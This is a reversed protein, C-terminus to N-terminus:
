LKATRKRNSATAFANSMASRLQGYAQSKQAEGSALHGQAQAEAERQRQKRKAKAGFIGMIGGAVAGVVAGQPGFKAGMVAGSTAGSIAGGASSGGAGMGKTLEAAIELGAEQKDSLEFGPKNTIGLDSETQEAPKFSQRIQKKAVEKPIEKSMHQSYDPADAETSMRKPVSLGIMKNFDIM